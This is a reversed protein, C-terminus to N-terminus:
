DCDGTECCCDKGLCGGIRGCHKRTTAWTRCDDDFQALEGADMRPPPNKEEAPQVVIEPFRHGWGKSAIITMNPKTAEDLAAVYYTEELVDYAYNVTFYKTPKKGKAWEEAEEFTDCVKSKYPNVKNM